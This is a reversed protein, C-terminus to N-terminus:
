YKKTVLFIGDRIPLMTAYLEPHGAIWDNVDSIARTSEDQTDKDDLVRGSWLVNDLVVVGHKSLRPLMGELYNKYNVKDADIFVLDFEGDLEKLAELGPKQLFKIKSFSESRSWFDETYNKKEIDITFVEGDEPLNEAMALASYGTFTGFEVIRKVGKSRILFGLLSAELEGVLMQSMPEIDRTKEELSRCIKSPRSSKDTAYKEIESSVFKM